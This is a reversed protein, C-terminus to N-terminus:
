VGFRSRQANFNQSVEKASLARNYIQASSIKGNFNAGTSNGIQVVAAVDPVTSADDGTGDLAGNRYFNWTSGNRSLAIHQWAGAVVTWDPNLAVTRSGGDQVDIEWNDLEDNGWRWWNNSDAYQGIFERRNDVDDPNVWMAVAFSTGFVDGIDGVSVYDDGGDFVISGGNGSDFTPGNTLTGNNGNGSLDSWTAGSGPYSVKDAADLCLVLGDTVIKPSYNSAM